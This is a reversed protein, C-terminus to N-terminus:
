HEPELRLGAMIVSSRIRDRNSVGSVRNGTSTQIGSNTRETVVWLKNDLFPHSHLDVQLDLVEGKPGAGEEGCHILVTSVNCCM